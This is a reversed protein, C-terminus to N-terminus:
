RKLRLTQTKTTKNGAVDTAEVTVTVPLSRVKRLAKVTRSSVRLQVSKAAGAAASTQSRALAFAAKGKSLKLKRATAATITATTSVTCAETCSASVKLGKGLVTALPSRQLKLTLGPATTDAPPAPSVPPKPTEVPAESLRVGDGISILIPPDSVHSQVPVRLEGHNGHVVITGTSSGSVTRTSRVGIECTGGVPLVADKCTTTISLEPDTTELTVASVTLTKPGASTLTVTRPPAAVGPRYSSLVVDGPTAKALAYPGTTTISLKARSQDQIPNLGALDDSGDNDVDAVVVNDLGLHPVQDPETRVTEGTALLALFEGKATGAVLEDKGDGDLDGAGLARVTRNLQVAEPDGLTGGATGHFVRVFGTPAYAVDAAAVDLRGDDNFDGAVPYALATPTDKRVAAGFTGSASGPLLLLRTIDPNGIFRTLALDAHGDGTFDAAVLESGEHGPYTVKPAFTGDGNGILVHLGNDNTVAIDLATGPGGLEAVVLGQDGGSDGGTDPGVEVAADFTGDGNGFLVRAVSTLINTGVLDQRGDGDLDGVALEHGSAAATKIEQFGGKGNGLLVTAPRDFMGAVSVFDAIGVGNFDGTALEAGGFPGHDVFTREVTRFFVDDAHAASAGGLAAVVGFLVAGVTHVGRSLHSAEM